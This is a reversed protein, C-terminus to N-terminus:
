HHHGAADGLLARSLKDYVLLKAGHADAVRKADAERRYVLVPKGMIGPRDVGVVYSADKAAIWPHLTRTTKKPDAASDLAEVFVAEVPGHKSPARLYQALDGISCFFQRTGDRHVLQARPAPQERVVMSCAACEATGPAVATLAKVQAKSQGSKRCGAGVVVFVLLTLRALRLLRYATQLKM